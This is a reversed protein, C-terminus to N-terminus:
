RKNQKKQQHKEDACSAHMCLIDQTCRYSPALYLWSIRDLSGTWLNPLSGGWLSRTWSNVSVNTSNRERFPVGKWLLDKIPAESPKRKCEHQKHPSRDRTHLPLTSFHADRRQRAESSSRSRFFSEKILRMHVLSEARHIQGCLRESRSRHTEPREFVSM